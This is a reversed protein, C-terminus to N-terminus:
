GQNAQVKEKKRQASCDQRSGTDKPRKTYKTKSIEEELSKIQEEITAMSCQPNPCHNKLGAWALVVM